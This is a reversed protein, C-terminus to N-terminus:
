TRSMKVLISNYDEIQNIETIEINYQADNIDMEVSIFRSYERPVYGLESQNTKSNEWLGM